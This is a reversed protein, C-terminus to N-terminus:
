PLDEILDMIVSKAVDVNIPDSFASKLANEVKDESLYRWNTADSAFTHVGNDRFMKVLRPRDEFAGLVEYGDDRLSEVAEKKQAVDDHPFDKAMYVMDYYIHHRVLWALTIEAYKLPRGTVIAIGYNYWLANSVCRMSEYVSDHEQADFFNEMDPPHKQVHHVRHQLNALTSDIDVVFVGRKSRLSRQATRFLRVNHEM